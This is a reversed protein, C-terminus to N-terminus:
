TPQAHRVDRRRLWHRAGALNALTFLLLMGADAGMATARRATIRCPDSDPEKGTTSTTASGMGPLSMLSAEYRDSGGAVQLIFNDSWTAISVWEVVDLVATGDTTRAPATQSSADPRPSSARLMSVFFHSFLFQMLIAMPVMAIAKEISLAFASIFLGVGTATLSTLTLGVWHWLPDGTVVFLASLLLVMLGCQLAGMAALVVFKSALYANLGLGLVRERKYIPAERAIEMCANMMGLWLAALSIVFYLLREDRAHGGSGRLVVTVIGVILPVQVFLMIVQGPMGLLVDLYRRTLLAFQRWSGRGPTKAETRSPRM